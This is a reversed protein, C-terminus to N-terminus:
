FQSYCTQLSRYMKSIINSIKLCSLYLWGHLIQNKTQKTKKWLANIHGMNVCKSFFILIRQSPGLNLASQIKKEFHTIKWLLNYCQPGPPGPSVWFHHKLMLFCAVKCSHDQDVQIHLDKCLFSKKHLKRQIALKRNQTVKGWLRKRWKILIHRFLEFM